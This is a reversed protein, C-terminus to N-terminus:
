EAVRENAKNSLRTCMHIYKHPITQDHEQKKGSDKRAYVYASPLLGHDLGLRSWCRLPAVAERMPWSCVELVRRRKFSEQFCIFHLLATWETRGVNLSSQSNSDRTPKLSRWLLSRVSSGDPMKSERAKSVNKYTSKNTASASKTEESMRARRSAEARDLQMKLLQKRTQNPWAVKRNLSNHDFRDLPPPCHPM